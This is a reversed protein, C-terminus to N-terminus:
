LLLYLKMVGIGYVEIFDVKIIYALSELINGLGKNRLGLIGLILEM